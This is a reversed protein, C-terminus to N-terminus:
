PRCSGYRNRSYRCWERAARADILTRGIDNGAFTRCTAVTRNYSRGRPECVVGGGLARQLVAKARRAGATGTEPADVGFVRVRVGSISCRFTDGDTAIPALCILIATLM